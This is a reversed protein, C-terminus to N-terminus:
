KWPCTDNPYREVLDPILISRDGYHIAQHTNFSVCILNEPDLVKWSRTLIDEKRIPNMHHIYITGTIPRDLCGLDCGEDRMIVIDRVEKWEKSSYFLQNLYRSGGFTSEGVVGNLSLYDFREAFTPLEILKSYALIM